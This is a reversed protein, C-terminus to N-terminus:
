KIIELLNFLPKRSAKTMQITRYNFSVNIQVLIATTKHKSIVDNSSRIMMKKQEAKMSLGQKLAPFVEPTPNSHMTIELTTSVYDDM